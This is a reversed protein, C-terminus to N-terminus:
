VTIRVQDDKLSIQGLTPDSTHVAIINPGAPFTRYGLETVFAEIAAGDSKIIEIIMVPHHSALVTRSGRLVDLEMGEVDLKVLDLRGLGLSDLSVMPVTTGAVSDYSIQQGIFENDTRRRLELSGFSAPRFYDPQPVVLEGCQEGLAALRVRANLCNNLAINGALAYYVIEQAEFALIRGWGYMHRAWEISHVGINAGGDIAVVGDGFHKRRCDLLALALRVEPEDFSSRNLLQHGVGYAGYADNTHYDNRNVIMSGHNSSALVFAIPRIPFSM